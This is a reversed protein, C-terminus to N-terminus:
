AHRTWDPAVRAWDRGWAGARRRNLWFRALLFLVCLGAVSAIWLGMAVALVAMVAGEHTVPQVALNGASDLWISVRQGSKTGTAAPVAGTRETGDTLTWRAPVAPMDAVTDGRTVTLAQPADRTLTATAPHREGSQQQGVRTQSAYTESGVALAVPLLVLAATIAAVLLAAEIWDARRMLDSRRPWLRRLVSLRPIENM